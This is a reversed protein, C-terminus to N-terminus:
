GESFRNYVDDSGHYKKQTKLDNLVVEIHSGFEETWVEDDRIFGVFRTTTFVKNSIGRHTDYVVQYPKFVDLGNKYLVKELDEQPLHQCAGGKCIELQSIDGSSIFFNYDHLLVENQIEPM